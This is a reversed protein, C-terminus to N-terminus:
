RMVLEFHPFDVLRHDAASGDGNWDCGLRVPVRIAQAHGLVVGAFLTFRFPDDWVNRGHLGPPWPLLDMAKSPSEQHKSKRHIGNLTSRGEAFLERQRELTRHGEIVSFDVHQIVHRALRQLEPHCTELNQTSREGFEPV